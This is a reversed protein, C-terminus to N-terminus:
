CCIVYNIDRLAARIQVFEISTSSSDECVKNVNHAEDLIVIAECLNIDNAERIRPDILYNYPMFLINSGKVKKKSIYYPCASFKKGIQDLDEIDIINEQLEPKKNIFHIKKEHKCGEVSNPNDVLNKCLYIKDTNSKSRLQENICLQNRSAIVIANNHNYATKKLEKM